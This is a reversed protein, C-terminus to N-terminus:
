MRKDAILKQILIIAKDEGKEINEQDRMLLTIYEYRWERNKKEFKAVTMSKVSIIINDVM